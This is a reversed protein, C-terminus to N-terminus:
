RTPTLEEQRVRLMLGVYGGLVLGWAIGVKAAGAIGMAGLPEFGGMFVVALCVWLPVGILAGILAGTIAGSVEHNGVVDDALPRRQVNRDLVRM